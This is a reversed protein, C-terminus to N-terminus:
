EHGGTEEPNDMVSVQAPVIFIPQDAVTVINKHLEIFKIGYHYVLKINLSQIGQISLSTNFSHDKNLFIEYPAQGSKEISLTGQDVPNLITGSVVIQEPTQSSVKTEIIPIAIQYLKDSDPSSNTHPLHVDSSVVTVHSILLEDNRNVFSALLEQRSHQVGKQIFSVSLAGNVQTAESITISVQDVKHHTMSSLFPGIRQNQGNSGITSKNEFIRYPGEIFDNILEKKAFKLEEIIQRDSNSRIDANIDALSKILDTYGQQILYVARAQDQGFSM